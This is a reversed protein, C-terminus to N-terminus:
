VFVGEAKVVQGCKNRYDDVEKQTLKDLRWNGSSGRSRKPRQSKMCAYDRETFIISLDCSPLSIGFISEPDVTAQALAKERWGKVWGPIKKTARRKEAVEEGESDTGKESLEYNDDPRPPPILLLRPPRNELCSRRGPIVPTVECSLPTRLPVPSSKLPTSHDNPPPHPAQPPQAPVPGVPIAFSAISKSITEGGMGGGDVADFFGISHMPPAQKGPDVMSRPTLLVSEDTMNKMPTQGRLAREKYASIHGGWVSLLGKVKGLTTEPVSMMSQLSQVNDCSSSMLPSVLPEPKVCPVTEPFLSVRLNGALDCLRKLDPSPAKTTTLPVPDMGVSWLARRDNSFDLTEADRESMALLSFVASDDDVRVAAALAGLFERVNASM